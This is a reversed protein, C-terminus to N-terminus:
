FPAGGGEQLLVEKGSDPTWRWSFYNALMEADAAIELEKSVWRMRTDFHTVKKPLRGLVDFRRTRADSLRFSMVQKLTAFAVSSGDGAWLPVTAIADPLLPLRRVVKTRRLLEFGLRGDRWRERVAWRGKPAPYRHGLVEIGVFRSAGTRGAVAVPDSLDVEEVKTSLMTAAALATRLISWERPLDQAEVYICVGLSPLKHDSDGTDIHCDKRRTVRPARQRWPQFEVLVAADPLRGARVLAVRLKELGEVELDATFPQSRPFYDHNDCHNLVTKGSFHARCGVMTAQAAGAWSWAALGVLLAVVRCM